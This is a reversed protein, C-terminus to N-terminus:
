ECVAVDMADAVTYVFGADEFGGDPAECGLLHDLSAGCFECTCHSGENYYTGGGCADCDVM